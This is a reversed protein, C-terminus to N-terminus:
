AEDVQVEVVLRSFQPRDRAVTPALFLFPRPLRNPKYCPLIGPTQRTSFSSQTSRDPICPRV